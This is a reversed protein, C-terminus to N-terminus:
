RPPAVPLVSQESRLPGSTAGVSGNGIANARILFSAVGAEATVTTRTVADLPGLLNVTVQGQFGAQVQGAEDVAIAHVLFLDPAVLAVGLTDVGLVLRTPEAAPDLRRRAVERGDRRAVVELAGSGRTIDPFRAAFPPAGEAGVARVGLSRGDLLLEVSDGSTYVDLPGTFREANWFTAPYVTAEGAAARAVHYAFKPRRWEDFLGAGGSQVDFAELRPVDSALVRAVAEAHEALRQEGDARAAGPVTPPTDMSTGLPAVLLGREAAIARLDQSEFLAPAGQSRNEVFCEFGAEDLRALDRQLAGASLAAGVQALDPRYVATVPRLGTSRDVVVGEADAEFRAPVVVQEIRDVVEGGLWVALELRQVLPDQPRWPLYPDPRLRFTEHACTRSAFEIGARRDVAVQLGVSNFLKAEIAIPSTLEVDTRRRILDARVVLEPREPELWSWEVLPGITAEHERAVGVPPLWELDVGGWLGLSGDGALEVALEHLGGDSLRAGLDVWLASSLDWELSEGDLEVREVGEAADFRLFASDAGRHGSAKLRREYRIRASGSPLGHPLDTRTSALVEGQADFSTVRWGRDLDVIRPAEIPATPLGSQLALSLALTLSFM